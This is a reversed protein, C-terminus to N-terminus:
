FCQSHDLGFTQDSRNFRRIRHDLRGVYRQNSLHVHAAAKHRNHYAAVHACHLRCRIGACCCSLMYCQNEMARVPHLMNWSEVRPYPWGACNVLIEAGMEVEKRFLEPFRIDYCISMGIKGFETDIVVPKDGREMYQREAAFLHMKRYTGLLRGERDILGATNYCKDGDQESISGTFIYSGLEKAKRALSSFTPGTLLESQKAYEEYAFFGINWLEPLVILDTGKLNDLIGEMRIIKQEKSEEDNVAFQVIAVKM